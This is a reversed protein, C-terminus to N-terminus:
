MYLQCLTRRGRRGPALGGSCEEGPSVLNSQRVGTLSLARQCHQLCTACTRAAAYVAFAHCVVAAPLQVRCMNPSTPRSMDAHLAMAHQGAPQFAVAWNKGETRLGQQRSRRLVYGGGPTGVHPHTVLQQGGENQQCYHAAAHMRCTQGERVALVGLRCGRAGCWGLM